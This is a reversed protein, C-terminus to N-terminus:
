AQAYGAYYRVLADGAYSGFSVVAIAVTCLLGVGQQLPFRSWVAVALAFALWSWDVHFYTLEPGHQSAPLGAHTLEHGALGARTVVWLTLALAAPLWGLTRRLGM